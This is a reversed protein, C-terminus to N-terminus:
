YIMPMLSPLAFYEYNHLKPDKELASFKKDLKTYYWIGDKIANKSKAKKSFIQAPAKSASGLAEQM